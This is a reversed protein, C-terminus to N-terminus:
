QRNKLKNHLWVWFREHFYYVITLIVAAITTMIGAEKIEGTYIFVVTGTILTALVRWSATKLLSEKQPFNEEM